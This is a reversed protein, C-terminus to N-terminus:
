RAPQRLGVTAWSRLRGCRPLWVIWTWATPDAAVESITRNDKDEVQLRLEGWRPIIEARLGLTSGLREAADVTQETVQGNVYLVRAFALVLNSREELTM